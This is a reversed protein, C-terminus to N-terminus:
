NHQEAARDETPDFPSFDDNPILYGRRLLAPEDSRWCSVDEETCLRRTQTNLLVPAGIEVTDMIPQSGFRNCLIWWALWLKRCFLIGIYAM